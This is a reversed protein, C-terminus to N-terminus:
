NTILTKAHEFVAGFNRGFFADRHVLAACRHTMLTKAREFVAGFNRGFFAERHVLATCLHGFIRGLVARLMMRPRSMATCQEELITAKAHESDAGFNRGFVAERYVLATCLHGFIRVLISWGPLRRAGDPGNSRRATRLVRKCVRKEFVRDERPPPPSPALSSADVARLQDSALIGLAFCRAEGRPPARASSAFRM